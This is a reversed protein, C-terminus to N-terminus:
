QQLAQAQRHFLGGPGGQHGEFPGARAAGRAIVHAEPGVPAVDSLGTFEPQFGEAAFAHGATVAAAGLQQLLDAGTQVALRPPGILRLTGSGGPVALSREAHRGRPWFAVAGADRRACWGPLL